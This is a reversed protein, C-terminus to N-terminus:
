MGEMFVLFGHYNIQALLGVAGFIFVYLSIQFALDLFGVDDFKRIKDFNRKIRLLVSMVKNSEDTRMQWEHFTKVYGDLMHKTGASMTIYSVTVSLTVFASVLWGLWTFQKYSQNIIEIIPFTSIQGANKAAELSPAPGKQPVIQLVFYVWVVNLIYCFLMALCAAVQFVIINRRTVKMKSYIVPLTNMAGGLAVTGILFPRGIYQWSNTSEQGVHNAIFGVLFVMVALMTGKVLTAATIFYQMFHHGFIVVLTCILVFPTILYTFKSSIGFLQSYALPGALSYSILISVFHILVSAEFIIQLPRNLFLKGMTHLDPGASLLKSQSTRDVENDMASYEAVNKEMLAQTRQLLEIMYILIIVQAFFCLTISVVYPAFGTQGVNVPLALIGTGLVTAVVVFFCSVAVWATNWWSTEKLMEEQKLRLTSDTPIETSHRDDEEDDLNIQKMELDEDDDIKVDAFSM